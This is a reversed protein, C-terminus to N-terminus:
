AARGALWPSLWTLGADLDGRPRYEAAFYGDYGASIAPILAGFDLDGADPEGRDPYAAIQVHGLRDGLRGAADLVDDGMDAVHFFDLIVRVVDPVGDARLADITEVAQGVTQLHYGAFANTTIPEVLVTLDHEVAREAAYALNARYTAESGDVRCSRGAMVHVMAWGIAWDSIFM